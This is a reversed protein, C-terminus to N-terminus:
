YISSAINSVKSRVTVDSVRVSLTLQYRHYAWTRYSYCPSPPYLADVTEFMWHRM